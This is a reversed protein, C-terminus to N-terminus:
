AENFIKKLIEARAKENDVIENEAAFKSVYGDKIEMFAKNVKAADCKIDLGLALGVRINSIHELAEKYSMKLAFKLLGLSRFISDVIEEKNKNYHEVLANENMKLLSEIGSTFRSLINKESVGFTLKTTINFYGFNEKEERYIWPTIIYGRESYLKTVEKLKDTATIGYLHALVNIKMAIGSNKINSTLFGYKNSAAFNFRKGLKEEVKELAGYAGSLDFDPKVIFINLHDNDNLLITLNNDSLYVFKGNEKGAFEGTVLEEDLFVGKDNESINSLDYLLSSNDIESAYGAVESELKVKKENSLSNVFNYKEINRRLNIRSFVICSNGSM